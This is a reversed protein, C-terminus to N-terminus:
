TLKRAKLLKKATLVKYKGQKKDKRSNAVQQAELLNSKGSQKPPEKRSLTLQSDDYVRKVGTVEATVSDLAVLDAASLEKLSAKGLGRLLEQMELAMSALANVVSTAALGVNLKTKAPSDYFVLTTPPEWPLAKELQNHVLALLPVTGLYIADAGLALAKLCQGPTNFGGAVIISIAANSLCRKARILAHLTPIGFDDQKIPAAAHAGGEAGDIVVVDFGLDAAAAIDEEIRDTAMIKLAIPIGGAKQRLGKMFGPWDDVKQIGPPAPLCIAPQGPTLGALTRAKGQFDAAEIRFTGMNSGHGIQVELMDAAAIQESTRGGWSWRCIQLIYKDAEQREEPLYPGEGSCIATQLTKAARALAQKAEESLATGYAMGSIMLPISLTLPTQAAPGLTISLDVPTSEPLSLGSLQRPVFMLNEFGLFHKPTGLPRSIIKGTEARLGSEVMNLVSLRKLAPLLEFLNQTYKDTLLKDLADDTVLKVVYRAIPGAFFILASLVLTLTVLPLFLWESNTITIDM